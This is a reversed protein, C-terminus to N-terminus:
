IKKLSAEVPEIDSDVQSFKFKLITKDVYYANQQRITKYSSIGYPIKKM